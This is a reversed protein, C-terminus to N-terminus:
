EAWRYGESDAPELEFGFFTASSGNTFSVRYRYVASVGATVIEVVKGRQGISPAGLGTVVVVDGLTFRPKREVNSM